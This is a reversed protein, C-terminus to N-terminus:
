KIDEYRKKYFDAKKRDGRAKYYEYRLETLIVFNSDDEPLQPVNLLLDEDVDKLPIGRYVMGQVTLVAEAVKWSDDGRVAQVIALMDTKGSEYELPLANVALIYFSTPVLARLIVVVVATSEGFIDVPLFCFVIGTILLALNVILGGAATVIFRPKISTSHRPSIECGLSNSFLKNPKLKVDMGVFIGFFKHGCEHSQLSLEYCVVIAIIYLIVTSSVSESQIATFYGIVAALALSLIITTYYIVKKM